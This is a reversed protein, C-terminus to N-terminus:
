WLACREEDDLARSVFSSLRGHHRQVFAIDEESICDDDIDAVALAPPPPGKAPRPRGKPMSIAPPLRSMGHPCTM